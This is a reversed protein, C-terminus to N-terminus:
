YARKYLTDEGPVGCLAAKRRNNHDEAKAEAATEPRM